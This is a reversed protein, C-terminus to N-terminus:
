PYEIRARYFHAEPSPKDTWNSLDTSFEITVKPPLPIWITLPTSPDSTGTENRAILTLTSNEGAPLDIVAGNTTVTALEEIGRYVTTSIVQEAPDPATWAIPVMVAPVPTVLLIFIIGILHLKM